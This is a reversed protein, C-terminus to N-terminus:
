LLTSEAPPRGAREFVLPLAASLFKEIGLPPRFFAPSNFFIDLSGQTLTAVKKIFSILVSKRLVKLSPVGLQMATGM